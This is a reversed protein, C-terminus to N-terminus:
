EATDGELQIEFSNNDKAPCSEPVVRKIWILYIGGPAITSLDLGASKSSCAAFTIDEPATSENTITQKDDGGTAEKGIEVYDGGTTNTKIWLKTNELSLTAHNNKVFFARYETNGSGSEDGTVKDFLNHLTDSAIETSSCVGGLSANPDTNGAGGSLYFKLDTAAIAM